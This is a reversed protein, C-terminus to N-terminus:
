QPIEELRLVLVENNSGVVLHRGDPAFAVRGLCHGPMKWECRVGGTTADWLIVRCDGSTALLRGDPSFDLSLVSGTHKKWLPGREPDTRDLHWLRVAGTTIGVALLGSDPSFRLERVQM